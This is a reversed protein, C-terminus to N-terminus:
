KHNLIDFIMDQIIPGPIYKKVEGSCFVNIKSSKLKIFKRIPINNVRMNAIHNSLFFRIKNNKTNLIENCSLNYNIISNSFKQLIFSDKTKKYKLSKKLILKEIINKLPMPIYYNSNASYFFNLVYSCASDDFSIVDNLGLLDSQYLLKILNLNGICLILKETKFIKNDNSILKIYKKEIYIKSIEKELLQKNFFSKKVRFIENDKNVICYTNSFKSNKSFIKRLIFLKKKFFNKYKLNKLFKKHRKYNIYGGWINSNGGVANYEYFNNSNIIKNLSSSFVKAKNFNYKFYIFSSIGSGIIIKKACNM